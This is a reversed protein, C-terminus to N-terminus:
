TGETEQTMERKKRAIKARLERIAILANDAEEIEMPKLGIAEMRRSLNYVADQLDVSDGSTSLEFHTLRLLTEANM